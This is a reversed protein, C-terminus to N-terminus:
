QILVIVQLVRIQLNDYTQSPIRTFGLTQPVGPVKEHCGLQSNSIYLTSNQHTVDGWELNYVAAAKLHQVQAVPDNDTLEQNGDTIKVSSVPLWEREFSEEKRDRISVDQYVIKRFCIYKILVTESGMISEKEESVFLKEM